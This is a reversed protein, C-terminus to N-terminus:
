ANLIRELLYERDNKKSDELVEEFLKNLVEGVKPGPTIGLIKMVDHGNVKLDAVTFPKKLVEKLRQRFLKLRWSEPQQLGGGLRDGVRLDMMNEINEVGINRIFRRLASDTQNENVSFQHWRVLKFLREREQKSIHLRNAIDRAMRAGIVEHNYFTRIGEKTVKAVKVKGIDHLLTSLRTIIDQSPCYKLSMACHTGVDFIHHRKPSKQEIEFCVDVEPLIEKLIRSEKALLIGETANKSVLIKFLEDRIREGSIRSLLKANKAIATKTKEDIEFGLTTAFRVARLLRLADERFRQDPDGVARILKNKLDSQGDYPDVMEFSSGGGLLGNPVGRTSAPWRPPTTSRSRRPSYKLAISNITFDRRALDEELTKGWVIKDPHRKDSYGYEKRYTTIEVVKKGDVPVGVTGFKNNYFGDPFIKLIDEPRANTTLDWDSVEKKWLIDRVAGGVIAVEFGAKAIRELNQQVQKDIEM